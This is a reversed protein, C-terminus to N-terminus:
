ALGNRRIIREVGHLYATEIDNQIDRAAEIIYPRQPAQGGPWRQVRGWQSRRPEATRHSGGVNLLVERTAASPRIREGRGQGVGTSAGGLQRIVMQGIRKHVQGLEKQLERGGVHRLLRNLERVGEIYIRQQVM